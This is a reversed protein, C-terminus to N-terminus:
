EDPEEHLIRIGAPEIELGFVTKPRSNRSTIEYLRGIGDGLHTRIAANVKAKRESFWNRYRMHENRKLLADELGNVRRAVRDRKGADGYEDTVRRYEELYERALGPTRYSVFDRGAAARRVAVAYFAFDAPPLPVRRGAATIRRHRYSLVIDPRDPRERVRVAQPGEQESTM